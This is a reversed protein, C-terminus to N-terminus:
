SLVLVTVFCFNFLPFSFLHSFGGVVRDLVNNCVVLHVLPFFFFPHFGSEEFFIILYLNLPFHLFHIGLEQSCCFLYVVDLFGAIGEFVEEFFFDQL